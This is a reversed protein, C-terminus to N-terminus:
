SSSSACGLLVPHMGFRAPRLAILRRQFARSANAFADFCRVSM